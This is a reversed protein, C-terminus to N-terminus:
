HEELFNRVHLDFEQQNEHVMRAFDYIRYNMELIIRKQTMLYKLRYFQDFSLVSFRHDDSGRIAGMNVLKLRESSVGPLFGCQDFSLVSFRHDDSGRIAGMNVLKLRESSVGPLFGCKFLGSSCCPLSCWCKLLQEATLWTVLVSSLGDTSSPLGDIFLKHKLSAM